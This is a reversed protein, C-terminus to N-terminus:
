SVPLGMQNRLDALGALPRWLGVPRFAIENLGKHRTKASLGAELLLLLMLLTLFGVRRNATGEDNTTRTEDNRERDADDAQDV